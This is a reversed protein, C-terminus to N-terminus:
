KWQNFCGQFDDEKLGKFLTTSEAAITAVDGLHWGRLVLKCKPFLFFDCPTLAVNNEEWSKSLLSCNKACDQCLDKENRFGRHFELLRINKGIQLEDAIMQITMWRDSFM